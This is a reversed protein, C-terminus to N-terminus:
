DIGKTRLAVIRSVTNWCQTYLRLRGEEYTKAAEMETMKKFLEALGKNTNMIIGRAEDRTPKKGIADKMVQAFAVNYGEEFQAQMAGLKMQHSAVVQELIAKNGGYIALYAELEKNSASNVEGFDLTEDANQNIEVWPVPHDKREQKAFAIADQYSWRKEM